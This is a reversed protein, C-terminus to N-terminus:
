MDCCEVFNMQDNLEPPILGRASQMGNFDFGIAISLMTSFGEVGAEEKATENELKGEFALPSVHSLASALLPCVVVLCLVSFWVLGLGADCDLDM